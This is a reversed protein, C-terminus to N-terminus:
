LDSTSATRCIYSRSCTHENVFFVWVYLWEVDLGKAIEFEFSGAERVPCMRHVVIGLADKRKLEM